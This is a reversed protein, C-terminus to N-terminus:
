ARPLTVVVHAKQTGNRPIFALEGGALTLIRSVISLGLGAGQGDQRGRYFRELVRGAQEASVGEGEDEVIIRVREGQVTATVSVKTDAPSYRVANEVLNRLLIDLAERRLLVAPTAEVGECDLQQHRREALPMLDALVQRVVPLLPTAQKLADADEPDLRALSLLQTVMRTARDVGAQLQALSAQVDDRNKLNAANHAHLKLVTLLTRLEHAADATFRQERALAAMVQAMLGNIARELPALETVNSASTVLPQLNSSDRARVARQLASLPRLGRGIVLAMLILALPVAVAFPTVVALAAGHVLEERARAGEAVMLWDGNSLRQTFVHWDEGAIQTRSLGATFGALPVEPVSASALLLSGDASWRQIAVYREYYHGPSSSHLIAPDLQGASSEALLALIRGQQALHGDFLEDVEHYAEVYTAVSVAVSTGAMVVAIAVLLFRRISMM